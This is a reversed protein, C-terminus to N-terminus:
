KGSWDSIELLNVTIAGTDPSHQLCSMKRSKWFCSLKSFRHHHPNSAHVLAKIVSRKELEVSCNQHHHHISGRIFHPDLCMQSSGIGVEHVCPIGTSQVHEEM